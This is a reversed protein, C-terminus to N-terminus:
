CREFTFGEFTKLYKMLHTKDLIKQFSELHFFLNKFERKTEENRDTSLYIITNGFSIKFPLIFTFQILIINM